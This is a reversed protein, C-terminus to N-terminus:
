RCPALSLLGFGLGKASGIGAALTHALAEADRVQLVGEFQVAQLEIQSKPARAAARILGLDRVQCRLVAFGGQEGKRALWALQELEDMVGVRKKSGDDLRKRATPNALLRFTLMQGAQPRWDFSKCLPPGALVDFGAFAKAWDPENQTQALLYSGTESQELRFLLRPDDPTGLCLRQHIRYPQAAWFVAQRSRNLNLKSLYM